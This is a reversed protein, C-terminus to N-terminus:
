DRKGFIASGIRLLNAGEEIAIEYDSTMGMSLYKFDPFSTKLEDYLNKLDKFNGRIINKDDTFKGITMLGCLRVNSLGSVYRCLNETKDPDVGSKQMEDSTNVQVLIDLVKNRKEAQRQIEEALKESDVSHILYVYDAIYKVKNTQLHGIMHWRINKTNLGKQLEDYKEKMEQPKNEGFDIQGANFVTLIDEVPFTKSVAILKIEDVNRGVRKCVEFIDNKLLKLNEAQYDKM